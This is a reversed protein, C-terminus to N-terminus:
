NYCLCSAIIQERSQFSCPTGCVVPAKFIDNIHHDSSDMHLKYGIGQLM